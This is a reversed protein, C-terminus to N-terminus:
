NQRKHFMAYTRVYRCTDISNMCVCVCVSVCECVCVRLINLEDISFWSVRLGFSLPSYSTARPIVALMKLATRTLTGMGINRM